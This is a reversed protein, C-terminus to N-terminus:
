ATSPWELNGIKIHRSRHNLYARVRVKIIAAELRHNRSGTGTKIVLGPGGRCVWLADNEASNSIFSNLKIVHSKLCADDYYLICKRNRLSCLM